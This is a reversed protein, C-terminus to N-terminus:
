WPILRKDQWFGGTRSALPVAAEGVGGGVALWAPTEAGQAATRPGKFSSM